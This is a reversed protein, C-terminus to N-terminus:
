FRHQLSASFTRPRGPLNYRDVHLHAAAFYKRDLLNEINLQLELKRGAISWNLAQVLDIRVYGPLVATNRNDAFRDGQVYGSLGTRWRESWRM